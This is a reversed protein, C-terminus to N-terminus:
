SCIQVGIIKRAVAAAASAPAAVVYHGFVFTFNNALFVAIPAMVIIAMVFVNLQQKQWIFPLRGAAVCAYSVFQPTSM